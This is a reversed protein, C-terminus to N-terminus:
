MTLWGIQEHPATFNVKVLWYNFSVYLFCTSTWMTRGYILIVFFTTNTTGAQDQCSFDTKISHHSVNGHSIYNMCKKQAIIKNM